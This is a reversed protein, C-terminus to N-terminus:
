AGGKAAVIRERALDSLAHTHGSYLFYSGAVTLLVIAFALVLWRRDVKEDEIQFQDHWHM